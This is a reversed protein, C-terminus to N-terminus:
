KTLGGSPILRFAHHDLISLTLYVNPLAFPIYRSTINPLTDFHAPLLSVLMDLNGSRHATFDSKNSRGPVSTGCAHQPWSYRGSPRHCVM